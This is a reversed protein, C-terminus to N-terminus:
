YSMFVDKDEQGPERYRNYDEETKERIVGILDIAGKKKGLYEEIKGIDMQLEREKEQLEELVTM